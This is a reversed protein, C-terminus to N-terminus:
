KFILDFCQPIQAEFCMSENTFPHKLELKCAHLGLRKLPNTRAGYKKDGVVSHGIDKMHVRIQNKRGTELQIALMSYEKTEKLVQYNTIAEQGDGAMQSSYMLLTQTQKLWSKIQGEKVKLRGEVIAIYRRNSVLDAWNDQFARKIKENKAFMLIGSTDRDLRHVAYIRGQPNNRRVYDTLIHYATNQKENDTAIALLGAPKNIVVIDTDEYIIDVDAMKQQETKIFQSISVTQGAQLQYDFQTIVVADVMVARHTLLSKINNRSKNKINSLLFELLAISEKVTFELNNQTTNAKTKYFRKEM